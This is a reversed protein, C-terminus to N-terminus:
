YGPNQDDPSIGPNSNIEDLPIPFFEHKGAEFGLSALEQNALGWRVLDRFRHGEYALEVQRENVIADFLDTGTATVDEVDARARVKNLQTRAEGENGDRYYAEAAMLLVDAYRILRWNTGYNLEPTAVGDMNTESEFTTYKTRVMGETDWGDTFNGGYRSQLEANSIITNLRRITDAADYANYLKATPPMFGWGANIGSTGGEWPGRPGSLQIHRNDNAQRNWQVTGWTNNESIFSAELLSEIGWETEKKTVDAFNTELGVLVGEQAIIAEFQTLAASWEGQYLHAKGLLAQAAQKHVRFKDIDNNPFNNKDPLVPIAETLDKEIQAWVEAQPTREKAEVLNKAYELRLPVDGFWTTLEFYYLARLVKAEAVYRASLDSSVVSKNIVLNSRSVGHYLWHFFKRIGVNEATWDFDDIKQYQAQDSEGGGGCNTGDSPLQKVFSWSSWDDFFDSHLMDYAAILGMSIEEDTQYYSDVDSKGIPEVELWEKSCSTIITALTVVILISIYKINKM